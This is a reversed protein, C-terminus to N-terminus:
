LWGGGGSIWNSKHKRKKVVITKQEKNKKRFPV